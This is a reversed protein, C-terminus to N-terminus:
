LKGACRDNVELRADQVIVRVDEGIPYRYGNRLLVAQYNEDDFAIKMYVNKADHAAYYRFVEGIRLERFVSVQQQPYTRRVKM